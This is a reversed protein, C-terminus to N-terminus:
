DFAPGSAGIQHKQVDGGIIETAPAPADAVARWAALHEESEWQEFINVRGAEVPDASIALDVCGPQNRARRVVDLHSEVYNARAEPAVFLYGAIIPM